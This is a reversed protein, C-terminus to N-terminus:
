PQCGFHVVRVQLRAACHFTTVVYMTHCFSVSCKSFETKLHDDNRTEVPTALIATSTTPNRNPKPKLAVLKVRGASRPGVRTM